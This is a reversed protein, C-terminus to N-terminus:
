ICCETIYFVINYSVDQLAKTYNNVDNGPDNEGIQGFSKKVVFACLEHFPLHSLFIQRVFTITCDYIKIISSTDRQIDIGCSDNPVDYM